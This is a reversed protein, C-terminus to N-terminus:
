GYRVIDGDDIFIQNQVFIILTKNKFLNIDFCEFERSAKLGEREQRCIDTKAIRVTVGAGASQDEVPM